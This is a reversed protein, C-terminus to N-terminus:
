KPRSTNIKSPAQTLVGEVVKMHVHALKHHKQCLWRVELPQHYDTHHAELLQTEACDPEQCTGPKTLHGYRLAQRVDHRARVIEPHQDRWSKAKLSSRQKKRKDRKAQRACLVCVSWRGDPTKTDVWYSELPQDVNCKTCTKMM